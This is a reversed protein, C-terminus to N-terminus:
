SSNVVRKPTAINGDIEKQDKRQRTQKSPKPQIKASHFSLVRIEKSQSIIPSHGRCCLFSFFALKLEVCCRYISMIPCCRGHIQDLEYKKIPIKIDDGIKAKTATMKHYTLFKKSYLGSM